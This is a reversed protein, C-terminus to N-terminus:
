KATNTKEDKNVLPTNTNEDKNVLPSEVDSNGSKQQDRCNKWVQKVDVYKWFLVLAVVCLIGLIVKGIIEFM